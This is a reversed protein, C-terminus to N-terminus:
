LELHKKIFQVAQDAYLLGYTMTHLFGKQIYLRNEVNKININEALQSDLTLVFDHKTNGNMIPTVLPSLSKSLGEALAEELGLSQFLQSLGTSDGAMGGFLLIPTDNNALSTQTTKLFPSNPVLDDVGQGVQILDSLTSKLAGATAPIQSVLKQLLDKNQLPAAGEWPGSASVLCKKGKFKDKFLRLVTYARLAGQSGGLFAIDAEEIGEKTALEAYAAKAQEEISKGFTDSENLSIIEVETGLKTKLKSAADSMDAASNGLGHFLVAYKKKKRTTEEQQRDKKKKFEESPKKGAPPMSKGCSVSCLLVLSLLLKSLSNRKTM